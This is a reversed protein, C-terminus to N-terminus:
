STPIMRTYKHPVVGGFQSTLTSSGYNHVMMGIVPLGYHVGISLFGGTTPIVSNGTAPVGTGVTLAAGNFSATAPILRQRVRNQFAMYFWGNPGVSTGSAISTLTGTVNKATSIFTPLAGDVGALDSTNTSGLLSGGEAATQMAVVNAEWCLNYVTAGPGQFPSPNISGSPAQFAKEERDYVAVTFPDCAGTATFGNAFPPNATATVYERKTPFTVVWDTKSNTFSDRIFENVVGDRMMSASVADIVSAGWTATVVGGNVFVNSTTSAGVAGLNPSTSGAPFYQNVTSWADLATADYTFNIGNSANFISMRGALGGGPPNLFTGPFINAAPNGSDGDMGDLAACNAPVGAANHKIYAQVAATTIVGMEIIEVYGERTRDLSTGALSYPTALYQLNKFSADSSPATRTFLNAPTVCSNDNTIVKAGDTTQVIGGVWVDSPSLYLNFDLVERSAKGELFRVKVIKTATTTNVV